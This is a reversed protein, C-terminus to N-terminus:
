GCCGGTALGANNCALGSGDNYLNAARDEMEAETGMDKCFGVNDILFSGSNDGLVVGNTGTNNGIRLPESSVSMNGVVSTPWLGGGLEEGTTADRGYLEAARTTANIQWHFFYWNGEILGSSAFLGLAVTDSKYAFFLEGGSGFAPKYFVGWEGNFGTVPPSGSSSYDGKTIVGHWEHASTSPETVEKFWFWMRWTGSIAAPSFCDDHAHTYHSSGTFAAAEDLKGTAYAESTATLHKNGASDKANGDFRYCACPCDCCSCGPNNMKFPSTSM